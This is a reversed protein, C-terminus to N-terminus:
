GPTQRFLSWFYNGIRIGRIPQFLGEYLRHDAAEAIVLGALVAHRLPLVLQDHAPKAPYHLLVRILRKVDRLEALRDAYRFSGQPHAAPLLQPNPWLAVQQEAAQM